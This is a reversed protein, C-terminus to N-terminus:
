SSVLRITIKKEEKSSENEEDFTEMPPIKAWHTWETIFNQKILTM